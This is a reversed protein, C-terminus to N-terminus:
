GVHIHPDWCDTRLGADNFVEWTTKYLHGSADELVTGSRNRGGPDFRGDNFKAFPSDVCTCCTSDVKHINSVRFSAEKCTWVVTEGPLVYVEPHAHGCKEIKGDSNVKIVIEKESM